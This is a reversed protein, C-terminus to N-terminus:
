PTHSGSDLTTIIRSMRLSCNLLGNIKLHCSPGVKAAELVVSVLSAVTSAIPVQVLGTVSETIKM